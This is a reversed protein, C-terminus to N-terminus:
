FLTLVVQLSVSKKKRKKQSFRTLNFKMLSFCVGEENNIPFKWLKGQETWVIQEEISNSPYPVDNLGANVKDRYSSLWDSATWQDQDVPRPM